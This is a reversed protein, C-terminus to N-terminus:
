SLSSTTASTAPVAFAAGYATRIVSTAFAPQVACRPPQRGAPRGLDTGALWIFSNTALFDNLPGSLAQEHGRGGAAPGM